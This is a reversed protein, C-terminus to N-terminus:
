PKVSSLALFLPIEERSVNEARARKGPLSTRRSTWEELGNVVFGSSVLKEFYAALPRHFTWTRVNPAAGPHMQIPVKLESMYRDVRRYQLKRKEDYGWGSQRPIRFCPHSLVWVMRGGARLVRAAEAAVRELREMNQVALVSCVADFSGDTFGKMNEADGVVYEINGLRGSRRRALKILRGSLDLGIVKRVLPSLERSLIGQGCGLDLVTEDKKPGLLRMVGPIILGSHFDSPNDTVLSDYWGAVKNWSTDRRGSRFMAPM